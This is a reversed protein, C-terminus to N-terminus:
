FLGRRRFYAKTKEPLDAFTREVRDGLDPWAVPIADILAQLEERAPFGTAIRL